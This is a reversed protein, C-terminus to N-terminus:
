RGGRAATTAVARVEQVRVELAGGLVERAVGAISDQFQDRVFLATFEDSTELVLVGAELRGRLLALWNEVLDTRLRSRLADFVLVWERCGLDRPDVGRPPPLSRLLKVCWAVSGPRFRAGRSAVTALTWSVARGTGCEDARLRQLERELEAAVGAEEGAAALALGHGLGQEVASRYEAGLAGLEVLDLLQLRRSPVEAEPSASGPAPDPAATARTRAAAAANETREPELEREPDLPPIPPIESLPRVGQPKGQKDPANDAPQGSRVGQPRRATEAEKARRRAEAKRQREVEPTKSPPQPPNHKEFNVVELVGGDHVRILQLKAIRDVMAQPNKATKCRAGTVLDAPDVGVGEVVWVWGPRQENKRALALIRTWLRFEADSLAAVKEDDHAETLFRFWFFRAM